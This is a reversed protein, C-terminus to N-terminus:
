DPKHAADPFMAAYKEVWEFAADEPSLERKEANLVQQRYNEIYCVQEVMRAKFADDANLFEVGLEADNGADKCWVVRANSEFVPDVCSIRLFVLSGPELRVHGRFALGGMGVCYALLAEEAVPQGVRRAEIPITAPHRIFQRAQM